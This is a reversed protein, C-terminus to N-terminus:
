SRQELRLVGAAGALGTPTIALARHSRVNDEERHVAHLVADRRISRAQGLSEPHLSHSAGSSRDSRVGGGASAFNCVDRVAYVTVEACLLTRFGSIVEQLRTEIDRAVVRFQVSVQEQLNAGTEEFKTFLGDKCLIDLLSELEYPNMQEHYKDIFKQCKSRKGAVPSKDIEAKFLAGLESVKHECYLVWLHEVSSESSFMKLTKPSQAEILAINGLFYRPSDVNPEDPIQFLHEFLM